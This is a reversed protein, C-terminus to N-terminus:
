RMTAVGWSGCCYVINAITVFDHTTLIRKKKMGSAVAGHLVKIVKNTGVRFQSYRPTLSPRPYSVHLSLLSQFQCCTHLSFRLPCLWPIKKKHGANHLINSTSPHFTLGRNSLFVFFATKSSHKTNCFFYIVVSYCQRYMRWAVM